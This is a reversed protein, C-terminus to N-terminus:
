ERYRMPKRVTRKPRQQEQREDSLDACSEDDDLGAYRWVLQMCAVM